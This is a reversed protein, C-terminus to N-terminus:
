TKKTESKEPDWNFGWIYKLRNALFCLIMNKGISGEKLAKNNKNGEIYKLELICQSMFITYESQRISKSLFHSQICVHFHLSRYRGAEEKYLYPSLRPCCAHKGGLKARGERLSLAGLSPRQRPHTPTAGTLIITAPPPRIHPSSSPTGNAFAWPVPWVDSTRKAIQETAEVASSKGKPLEGWTVSGGVRSFSRTRGQPSSPHWQPTKLQRQRQQSWCTVRTPPFPLSSCEQGRASCSPRVLATGWKIRWVVRSTPPM